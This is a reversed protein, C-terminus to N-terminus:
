FLINTKSYLTDILILNAFIIKTVARFFPSVHNTNQLQFHSVLPFCNTQPSTATAAALIFCNLRKEVESGHRGSRKTLPPHFSLGGLFLLTTTLADAFALFCLSILLYCSHASARTVPDICDLTQNSPIQNTFIRPSM